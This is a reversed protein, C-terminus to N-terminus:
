VCVVSNRSGEPVFQGGIFRYVPYYKYSSTVSVSEGSEQGPTLQVTMCTIGSELCRQALVRGINHSASVDSKSCYLNSCFM